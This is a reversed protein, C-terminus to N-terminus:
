SFSCRKLAFIWAAVSYGFIRETSMTTTTAMMTPKTSGCNWSINSLIPSSGSGVTMKSPMEPKTLVYQSCSM